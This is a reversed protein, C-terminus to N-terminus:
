NKKISSVRKAFLKKYNFASILHFLKINLNECNKANLTFLYFSLLLSAKSLKM